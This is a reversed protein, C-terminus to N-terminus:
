ATNMLIHETGIYNHGMQQAEAWGLEIIRKTRPTMGITKQNAVPQNTGILEDIKAVVKEETVNASLLTKAAVGSGERVLGM